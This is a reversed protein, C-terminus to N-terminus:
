RIWRVKGAPFNVEVSRFRAFFSNGLLGVSQNNCRMTAFVPLDSVFLDVGIEERGAVEIASAVTPFIEAKGEDLGSAEEGKEPDGEVGAARAAQGDLFPEAAGTDLIFSVPIENVPMKVMLHNRVEVFPLELISRSPDPEAPALRLRCKKPDEHSFHLSLVPARKL